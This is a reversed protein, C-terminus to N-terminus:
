CQACELLQVISQDAHLALAIDRATMNQNNVENLEYKALEKVAADADNLVAYMLATSGYADKRVNQEIFIRVLEANNNQAAIM